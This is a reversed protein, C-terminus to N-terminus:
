GKEAIESAVAPRLAGDFLGRLVGLVMATETEVDFNAEHALRKFLGGVLTFVLRAAFASDLSAAAEGSAKAAEFVQILGRRVDEDISRGMAAIRPNRTGESWIELIMRAKEPPRALLHHRLGYAMADFVNPSRSLAAFNRAREDQDLICLGEVLAEKSLFYRYLNGASMGAEEAVHIMTAAHFGHRVFAREAAAFIEARRDREPGRKSAAAFDVQM